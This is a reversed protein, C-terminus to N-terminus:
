EPIGLFSGKIRARLSKSAVPASLGRVPERTDPSPSRSAGTKPSPCGEDRTSRSPPVSRACPATRCGGKGLPTPLPVLQGLRSRWSTDAGGVRSVGHRGEAMASSGRLLGRRRSAPAPRRGTRRPLPSGRRDQSPRAVKGQSTAPGGSPGPSSPAPRSASPSRAAATCPPPTLPSRSPSDAAFRGETLSGSSPLRREPYRDM